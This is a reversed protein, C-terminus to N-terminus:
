TYGDWTINGCKGMDQVLMMPGRWGLRTGPPYDTYNEGVNNIIDLIKDEDDTEIMFEGFIKDNRLPCWFEGLDIDFEKKHSTKPNHNFKWKGRIGEYKTFSIFHCNKFFDIPALSKNAIDDKCSLKYITNTM